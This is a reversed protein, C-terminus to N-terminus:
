ISKLKKRRVTFVIFSLFGLSILIVSFSSFSNEDTPLPETVNEFPANIPFPDTSGAIGAIRYNDVEESWWNGEFTDVDFWTNNFGDDLAQSISSTSGGYNNDIFYNHYIVSHQSRFDLSVGFKENREFTNDVIKCASTSYFRVGYLNFSANNTLIDFYVSDVLYIASNENYEFTNQEITNFISDRAYLGFFNSTYTNEYYVCDRGFTMVSGVHINQHILNNEFTINSVIYMDLGVGNFSINCNTVESYTLNYFEGGRYLNSSLNNNDFVLESCSEADIAVDNFRILNNAILIDNCEFIGMGISNNEIENNVIECSTCAYLLIGYTTDVIIQNQVTVNTCNVLFIQGYEAVSLTMDSKSIFVGLKLGNVTNNYFYYNSYSAVSTEVAFLGCDTFSNEGIVINQCIEFYLGLNMNSFTNGIVTCNTSIIIDLGNDLNSSFLNDQILLNTCNFAYIGKLTNQFEQNKITINNSNYMIIQGYELTTYSLSDNNFFFGLKLGNITNLKVVYRSYLSIEDEFIWLGNNNLSNNIIYGGECTLSYIGFIQNDSVLNDITSCNLSLKNLRIGLFENRDCTNGIITCNPSNELDIGINNATCNNGDITVNLCNIILIGRSQVTNITNNRLTAVGDDTNVLKIGSHTVNRIVCNQIVFHASIGAIYMGYGVQDEILFNEIRYPDSATGSGPFGSTVFDSNSYLYITSRPTLSSLSSRDEDEVLIDQLGFTSTSPIVISITLLAFIFLSSLKVRNIIIIM